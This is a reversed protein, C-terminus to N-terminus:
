GVEIQVKKAKVEEVKPLHVELIGDKYSAKVKATDVKAPLEVTRAFRRYSRECHYYNEEKVEEEKKIEAKITLHDKEVSLDIKDKDVGPLEAKVLIEDKKDIVDLAPIAVGEESVSRWWPLGLRFRRPGPFLEDWLRDMERRITELEKFPHWKEVAMSMVEKRLREVRYPNIIKEIFIYAGYIPNDLDLSSGFDSKPNQTM